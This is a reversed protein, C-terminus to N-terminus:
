VFQLYPSVYLSLDIIFIRLFHRRIILNNSSTLGRLESHFTYFVCACVCVCVCLWSLCNVITFCTETLKNNNTQTINRQIVYYQLLTSDKSHWARKYIPQDWTKVAPDLGRQNMEFKTLFFLEQFFFHGILTLENNMRCERVVHRDYQEDIYIKGECWESVPVPFDTWAKYANPCWQLIQGETSFRSVSVSYTRQHVETTLPKPLVVHEPSRRRLSRQPFTSLMFYFFIFSIEIHIHAALVVFLYMLFQVAVSVSDCVINSLIQMLLLPVWVIAELIAGFLWLCCIRSIKYHFGSFFVTFTKSVLNCFAYRMMAVLISFWFNLELLEKLM